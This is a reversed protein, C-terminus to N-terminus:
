INDASLDVLICAFIFVNGYNFTYINSTGFSDWVFMFCWIFNQCIGMKFIFDILLIIATIKVAIFREFFNRSKYGNGLLDIDCLLGGIVGGMIAVLCEPVTNPRTVAVASAIGMALHTNRMMFNIEGKDM